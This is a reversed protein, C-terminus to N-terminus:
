IEELEPVARCSHGASAIILMLITIIFILLVLIVPLLNIVIIFVVRAYSHFQDGASALCIAGLRLVM